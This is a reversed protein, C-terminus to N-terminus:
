NHEPSLQEESLAQLVQQRLAICAASSCATKRREGVRERLKVQGPQFWHQKASLPKKLSKASFCM